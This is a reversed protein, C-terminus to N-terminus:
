AALTNKNQGTRSAANRLTDEFLYVPYDYPPQVVSNKTIKAGEPKLKAM